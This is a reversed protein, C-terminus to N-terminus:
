RLKIKIRRRKATRRSASKGTAQVLEDSSRPEPDLPGSVVGDVFDGGPDDSAAGALRTTVV